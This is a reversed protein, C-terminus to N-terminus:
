AACLSAQRMQEQYVDFGKNTLYKSVVNDGGAYSALKGLGMLLGGGATAQLEDTGSAIGRMVPGREALNKEREQTDLRTQKRQLELKKGGELFRDMGTSKAWTTMDLDPQGSRELDRDYFARFLSESDAGDEHFAEINSSYDKLLKDGLLESEQKQATGFGDQEKDLM